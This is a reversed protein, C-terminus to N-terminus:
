LARLYGLVVALACSSAVLLATVGAAVARERSLSALLARESGAYVALKAPNSSAIVPVTDMVRYLSQAEANQVRHIDGLVYLHEGPDIFSEEVELAVYHGAESTRDGFPTSALSRLLEYAENDRVTRFTTRLDVAAGTLDLVGAGSPDEVPIAAPWSASHLDQAVRNRGAQVVRKVTVRVFAHPAHDRLTVAPADARVRVALEAGGEGVRALRATEAAICPAMALSLKVARDRLALAVLLAAAIVTVGFGYGTLYPDNVDETGVSRAIAYIWVGVVGALGAILFAARPPTPPERSWSRLADVLAGAKCVRWLVSAFFVLVALGAALGSAVSSAISRIRREPTGSGLTITTPEGGRCSVLQRLSDSVCADAFVAANALACAHIVRGGDPLNPMRRRLAGEFEPDAVYTDLPHFRIQAPDVAWARAGITLTAGEAVTGSVDTRWGGNKGSVYYQHAVYCVPPSEMGAFTGAGTVRGGDLERQTLPRGLRHLASGPDLLDVLSRSALVMAGAGLGVAVLGFFLTLFVAGAVSGGIIPILFRYRAGTRGQEM